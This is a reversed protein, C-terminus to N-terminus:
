LRSLEAKQNYFLYFTCFLDARGSTVSRESRESHRLAIMDRYLLPNSVDQPGLNISPQRQSTPTNSNTVGHRCNICILLSKIQTETLTQTNTVTNSPEIEMQSNEIYYTNQYSKLMLNRKGVKCYAFNLMFEGHIHFVVQIAM